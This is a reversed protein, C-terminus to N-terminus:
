LQSSVCACCLVLATQVAIQPQLQGHFNNKFLFLCDKYFHISNFKNTLIQELFFDQMIVTVTTLMNLQTTTCDTFSKTPLCLEVKGDKTMDPWLLLLRCIEASGSSVLGTLTYNVRSLYTLMPESVLSWLETTLRIFCMSLKGCPAVVKESM